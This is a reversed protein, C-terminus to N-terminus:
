FIKVWVLIESDSIRKLELEIQIRDEDNKYYRKEWDYIGDRKRNSEERGILSYHERILEEHLRDYKRKFEMDSAYIRVESNPIVVVSNLLRIPKLSQNQIRFEGWVPSGRLAVTLLVHSIICFIGFRISM